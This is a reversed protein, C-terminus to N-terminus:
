DIRLPRINLEHMLTKVTLARRAALETLYVLRQAARTETRDSCAVLETQEAPTFTHSDRRAVLTRYRQWFAEPFGETICALLEAESMAAPPPASLLRAEAAERLFTALDVGESRAAEQFRAETEPPLDLTITMLDDAKTPM